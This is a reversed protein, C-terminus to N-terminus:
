ENEKEKDLEAGLEAAVKNIEILENAIKNRLEQLFAISRAIVPLHLTTQKSEIGLLYDTSCGYVEAVMRVLTLSPQSDQKGTFNSYTQPKIKLSKAFGSKSLFRSTREDEIRKITERGHVKVDEKTLYKSEM